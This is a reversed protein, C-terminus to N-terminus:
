APDRFLRLQLFRKYILACLKEQKLRHQNGAELDEFAQRPKRM